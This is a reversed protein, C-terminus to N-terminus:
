KCSAREHDGSYSRRTYIKTLLSFLTEWVEKGGGSALIVKESAGVRGRVGSELPLSDIM